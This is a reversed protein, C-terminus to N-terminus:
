RVRRQGSSANPPAGIAPLSEVRSTDGRLEVLLSDLLRDTALPEWMVLPCARAFHWCRGRRSKSRKPPGSSAFQITEEGKERIGNKVGIRQRPVVRRAVCKLWLPADLALYTFFCALPCEAREVLM